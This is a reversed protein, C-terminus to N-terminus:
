GMLALFILTLLMTVFATIVYSWGLVTYKLFTLAGHQGYFNRMARFIYWSLYGLGIFVLLVSFDGVWPV